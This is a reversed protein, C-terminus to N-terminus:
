QLYKTIISLLVERLMIIHEKTSDNIDEIFPNEIFLQFPLINLGTCISDLVKISPFYKGNELGNYYNTSVNIIEAVDMQTLNKQTRYFRINDIFIKQLYYM